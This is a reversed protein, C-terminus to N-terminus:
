QTTEMEKTLSKPEIYWPGGISKTVIQRLVGEVLAVDGQVTRRNEFRHCAAVERLTVDININHQRETTM